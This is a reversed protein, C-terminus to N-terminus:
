CTKLTLPTREIIQYQSPHNPHPISQVLCLEHAFWHIPKLICADLTHTYDRALTIHPKFARREPKFGQELLHQNLFAHLANLSDSPLPEFYAFQNQSCYAAKTLKLEFPSIPCNLKKIKSYQAPTLAGLYNLTLHLNEAPSRTCAVAQTMIEANQDLTKQTREDPWLAFFYRPTNKEPAQHAKARKM